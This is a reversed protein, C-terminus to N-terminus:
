ILLDPFVKYNLLGGITERFGSTCEDFILIIKKM